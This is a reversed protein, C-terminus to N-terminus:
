DRWTRPVRETKASCSRGEDPNPLKMSTNRLSEQGPLLALMDLVEYIADNPEGQARMVRAVTRRARPGLEEAQPRVPGSDRSHLDTM